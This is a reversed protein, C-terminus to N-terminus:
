SFVRPVALRAASRVARCRTSAAATAQRRSAPALQAGVVAFHDNTIAREAALAAAVCPVIGFARAMSSSEVASWRAGDATTLATGRVPPWDLKLKRQVTAESGRSYTTRM